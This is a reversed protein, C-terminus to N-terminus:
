CRSFVDVLRLDVSFHLLILGRFLRLSAPYDPGEVHDLVAITTVPGMSRRRRWAVGGSVGGRGGAALSGSQRLGRNQRTCIRGLHEMETRLSRWVGLVLRRVHAM